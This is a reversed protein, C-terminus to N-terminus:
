GRHEPSGAGAFLVRMVEEVSTIGEAAKRLGDQLMTVMGSEIAALRLEATSAGRLTLEKLRDSMQLLEFLATRGRFGYGRCEPCGEGRYFTSGSLRAGAQTQLRDLLSESPQYPAKCKPCLCRVLRQALVTKLAASVLFPEVGMETLRTIVSPADQPLMATLVLHGTMAAQVCVKATELDRLDGALIIDPDCRVFTRLAVAMTLGAKRNVHVQMVNRLRYEVPEEITVIKKAPANLVNLASYLTTTRGSGAPGSVVILGQPEQLSREFAQRTEPLFGLRDPGILVSSQDLVRLIASEGYIAPVTTIRFDYTKGERQVEVRGFQPFVRTSIDMDGMLKLRSILPLKVEYPLSMAEHLVGDVRYRVLAEDPNGDIHIDSARGRIADQFMAHILSVVASEEGAEVKSWDIPELGRARREKDVAAALGAQDVQLESPEASELFKQLDDRRFRWQSGVKFGKIKGQALWRYFTPKSVKLLQAAGTLDLMGEQGTGEAPRPATKRRPRAQKTSRM